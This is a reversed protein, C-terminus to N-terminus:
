RLPWAIPILLAELLIALVTLPAGLRAFDGFRYGGMGYVMTNTQYGIPTLFSLSAALAVAFAFGRPDLGAEGATAMAIPFMLIAAANNTVLETVIMTAVLVGLLLGVDGLAELPGVVREAASEALGSSRIAEGLGFSTAILVVINLDVANRAEAPSLVGLAVVLFAALIAAVLVDLVGTGVLVLLGVIIVGVLPAKERRPFAEAALPAIVLFSPDNLWRRRFGSDALLLLVDGARLEVEGLKGPVREGARHIALVAAGYRGRFGSRRLTAGDLPSGTAVVAEFLRRRTASGAVSFHPEEASVLGSRQQLDLIRGVNGAFTLRDGEALVEDPGVPAIKRGDREIEVLYVGELNRLGAEAVSRGAPPSGAVIMEVTFERADVEFAESPARRLPLLRPTLLVLLALGAVAVPLGVKGIEFLGMPRQGDEEMLGAVVLNTSTGILTVCGGLIVAYSMPMLYRSPSRGTRRTWSVIAPAVMAVIPTNNMFASMGASPALLRTLMGRESPRGDEGGVVRLALRELAGTKEVAAALVYLAAVTLPASNSFGAFAQETDIVGAVLLFTLAGLVALPPAVREWVLLTVTVVVVLLTVWAEWGM